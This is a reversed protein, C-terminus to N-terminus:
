GLGERQAERLVGVLSHLDFRDDEGSLCIGAVHVTLNDKDILSVHREGDVAYEVRYNGDVPHFGRLEAGAHGLAARLKREAREQESLQVTEARVAHAFAYGARELRTLGSRDLRDPETM